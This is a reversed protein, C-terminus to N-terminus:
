SLHRQCRLRSLATQSGWSIPCDTDTSRRPPRGRLISAAAAAARRPAGTSTHVATGIRVANHFGPVPSLSLTPPRTPTETPEFIAFGPRTRETAFRTLEHPDMLIGGVPPDRVQMPQVTSPIIEQCPIPAFNPPGGAKRGIQTVAVENSVVRKAAQGSKRRSQRRWVEAFSREPSLFSTSPRFEQEAPCNSVL